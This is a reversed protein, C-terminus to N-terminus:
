AGRESGERKGRKEEQLEVSCAAKLYKRKKMEARINRKDRKM